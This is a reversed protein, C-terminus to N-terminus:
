ADAITTAIPKDLFMHKGAAAAARTTDLHVNNPTTNIIADISRDELIAEYSPAAKCGYKAAFAQRKDESRTFCAVIKLKDSRTIADALVDSWWGMGICAVNVPKFAM